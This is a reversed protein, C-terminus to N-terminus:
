GTRWGGTKKTANGTEPNDLDPLPVEKGRAPRPIGRRKRVKSARFEDRCFVYAPRGAIIFVAAAAAMVWNWEGQGAEVAFIAAPMLAFGLCGAAILIGVWLSGLNYPDDGPAVHEDKAYSHMEDTVTWRLVREEGRELAARHEAYVAADDRGAGGATRAGPGSPEAPMALGGERPRIVFPHVGAAMAVPRASAILIVMGISVVPSPLGAYVALLLGGCMCAWLAGVLLALAAFGKASVRVTAGAVPERRLQRLKGRYLVWLILGFGVVAIVTMTVLGDM